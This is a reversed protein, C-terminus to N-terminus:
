RRIYTEPENQSGKRRLTGVVGILPIILALCLLVLFPSISQLTSVVANQGLISSRWKTELSSLSVGFARETGRQCDVGDAYSAALSLLGASGYTDHLYKVFSRSEAYALFAQGADGPFSACLDKLPILDNNAVAGALARDYDVNPYVEALTATGERLWAPLNAYGPGLRRYLMVHMLEHPIRQEMKIGQEAGPEVAVMLVGLAPDAHAAVWDEGGVRFTGRLDDTNAYVFIEVPQAVDLTMLRSVSGLGSQAANLVAQGFNPDGAYWHVRLTGSELTQWNFRDDAYRM